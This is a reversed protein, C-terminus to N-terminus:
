LACLPALISSGSAQTDQGHPVKFQAQNMHNILSMSTQVRPLDITWLRTCPPRRKLM